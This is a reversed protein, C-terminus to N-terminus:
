MGLERGHKARYRKRCEDVKGELELASVRRWQAERRHTLQGTAKVSLLGREAWRPFAGHVKQKMKFGRQRFNGVEKKITHLNNHLIAVRADTLLSCPQSHLPREVITTNRLRAPSRHILTSNGRVGLEFAAASKCFLEDIGWLTELEEMADELPAVVLEVFWTFFVADFLPFQLEVFDTEAAVVDSNEWHGQNLFIYKQTDPRVTTQMVMSAPQPAFSCEVADWFRRADFTTDVTMDEDLLWVRDYPVVVSSHGGAERAAALVPLLRRYLLAKNTPIPACYVLALKTGVRTELRSKLAEPDGRDKDECQYALVAWDRCINLATTTAVNGTLTLILTLTLTLPKLNPKPNPNPNTPNPDTAQSSTWPYATSTPQIWSLPACFGEDLRTASVAGITRSQLWPQPKTKVGRHM